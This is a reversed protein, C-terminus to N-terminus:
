GYYKLLKWMHACLFDLDLKLEDSVNSIDFVARCEKASGFAIQFFNRIDKDSRKGSGEALNLVISSSARLLQDKLHRPLKLSECSKYFLVALQYTRFNKLM